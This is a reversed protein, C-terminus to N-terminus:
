YLKIEGELHPDDYVKRKGDPWIVTVGKSYMVSDLSGGNSASHGFLKWHEPGACVGGHARTFERIASQWTPIKRHGNLYPVFPGWDYHRKEYDM